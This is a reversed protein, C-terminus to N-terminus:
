LCVDKKERERGKFLFVFRYLEEEDRDGLAPSELFVRRGFLGLNNEDTKQNASDPKSIPNVQFPQSTNNLLYQEDDFEDFHNDSFYRNALDRDDIIMQDFTAM